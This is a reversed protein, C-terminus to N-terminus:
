KENNNEFTLACSILEEKFYKSFQSENKQQNRLPKTDIPEFVCM